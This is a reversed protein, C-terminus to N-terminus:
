MCIYALIYKNTHILTTHTHTYKGWGRRSHLQYVTFHVSILPGGGQTKVFTAAQTVWVRDLDLVNVDCGALGKAGRDLRYGSGSTTM